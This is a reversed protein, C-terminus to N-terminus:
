QMLSIIVFTVLAMETFQSRCYWYYNRSFVIVSCRNLPRKGLVVQTVRCWFPLGNQIKSSCSIIPQCHCWSSWISLRWHKSVTPQTAPLGDPRYFSLPSTSAHDYTRSFPLFVTVTVETQKNQNFTIVYHLPARTITWYTSYLVVRNNM